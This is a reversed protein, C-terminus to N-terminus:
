KKAPSPSPVASMPPAKATDVSTATSIGRATTKQTGRSSGCAATCLVVSAVAAGLVLKTINM